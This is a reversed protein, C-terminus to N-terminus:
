FQSKFSPLIAWAAQLASAMGSLHELHKLLLYAPKFLWASETSNKLCTQNLVRGFSFSKSSKCIFVKRNVGKLNSILIM